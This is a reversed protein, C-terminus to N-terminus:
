TIFTLFVLYNSTQHRGLKRELLVSISVFHIPGGVVRARKLGHSLFRMVQYNSRPSAQLDLIMNRRGSFVEWSVM